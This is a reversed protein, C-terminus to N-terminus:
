EYYGSDYLYSLTKLDIGYHQLMDEVTLLQYGRDILEPILRELASYTEEYEDHLVVIDGGELGSDMVEQYIDQPEEYLWDRSDVNWLIAPVPQKELVDSDFEGGVPRYTSMEYGVFEKMYEVPGAIQGKIENVDIVTLDVRDQTFSGYSNGNNISRLLFYYVQYDAWAERNELDEGTVYFTANADYEYLLDVVKMSTSVEPRYELDPGDNFTLCVIPHDDDVYVPKRYIENPFGFDMDLGKQMYKIPIYTEYGFEDYKVHLSDGSIEYSIKSFDVGDANLTKLFSSDYYRDPDNKKLEYRLYDIVIKRGEDNLEKATIAEYDKDTFYKDDNGYSVLYYDGYPVLSYDHISDDKVGKCLDKAYKKGTKSDPYFALCHRTKYTKADDHISRKGVFRFNTTLLVIGVIIVTLMAMILYVSKKLRRKKAM